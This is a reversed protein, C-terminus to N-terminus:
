KIRLKQGISLVDSKLNNLKKLEDVTIKNDKAIGWLTDGAKVVYYVAKTLRLVQGIQLVDSKLGNIAKLDAVSVGTAKSIGWLTDGAKVTYTDAKPAPAPTPAVPKPAPKPAPKAVPKPAPKLAKAVEAKFATFGAPNSVWFAPCNKGTIDYHRYIDTEKLKFMKCLEAVVAITRKLTDPHLSGDKEICMEVGITTLNADGGRYQPVSAKLKPIRCARENAHYAVENLPVVLIAEKKDVFIHASASRKQAICTGNFYDRENQATASPTATYHVVIGRVGVLKIAPRTYRNVNLLSTRWLAM